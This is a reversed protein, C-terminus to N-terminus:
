KGGQKDLNAVVRPSLSAARRPTAKRLVAAVVMGFGFVIWLFLSVVVPFQWSAPTGWAGRLMGVHFWMGLYWVMFRM